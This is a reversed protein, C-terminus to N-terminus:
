LEDGAHLDANDIPEGEGPEYVAVPELDGAEEMGHSHVPDDQGAPAGGLTNKLFFHQQRQVAEEYPKGRHAYTLRAHAPLPHHTLPRSGGCTCAPLSCLHAVCM